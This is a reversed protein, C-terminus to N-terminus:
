LNDGSFTFNKLQNNPLHKKTEYEYRRYLKTKVYVELLKESYLAKRPNFEVKLQVFFLILFILFVITPTNDFLLNFM